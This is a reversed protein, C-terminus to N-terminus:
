LFPVQTIVGTIPTGSSPTVVVTIRLRRTSRQLSRGQSTLTYHVIGGQNAAITFHLRKAITTANHSITMKGTCSTQGICGLFIGGVGQPAVFATHGFFKLNSTTPPPSGTTFTADTGLTTGGASVAVIRYHYTQNSQLGALSRTVSVAATGSGASTPPTQLGYASTTGFEFYYDTPLGNPNVTANVTAGNVSPSATGTTSTPKTPPPPPPTGTTKFTLPLGTATGSGNLAIIRYHYTSGSTLGTISASVTSPTDGSGASTLTTEHGFGTTTGYQFAYMTADGNPNITGSVIASSSTIASASATTVSPSGAAAAQSVFVVSVVILALVTGLWTTRRM